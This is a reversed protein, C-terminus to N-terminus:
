DSSAADVPDIGFITISATNGKPGARWGHPVGLVAITDGAEFTMESGDLLITVEGEILTWYDITDTRHSDMELEPPMTSMFWRAAGPPTRLDVFNGRRVEAPVKVDSPPGDTEWLLEYVSGLDTSDPILGPPGGQDAFVEKVSVVKATGAEAAVVAFKM